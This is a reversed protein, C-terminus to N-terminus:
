TKSPPGRPSSKRRDVATSRKVSMLRECQDLMDQVEKIAAEM